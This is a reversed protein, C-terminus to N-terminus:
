SRDAGAAVRIPNGADASGPRLKRSLLDLLISLQSSTSAAGFVYRDPRIVVWRANRATMWEHLAGTVDRIVRKASSSSVPSLCITQGRIARWMAAANPALDELPTADFTLLTFRGSLLDDLRVGARETDEIPPQPLRAGGTLEDIVGARIAPVIDTMSVTADGRAAEEARFREDRRAAAAPDLICVAAGAAVSAATIARVHEEREEQYTDFLAADAVGDLVLRVKWVLQAADRIGHCMGQGFFPPTQHAADGLLFVSGVRWRHAVLGHFRYVAARVVEVHAPDIWDSLLRSIQAPEMAAEDSEQPLLMYEWRRHQGSGPIVTTPRSPDCVMLSYGGDRVEPPIQYASPWRMPGRVFTDVVLWREEFAMDDLAIGLMKRTPSSAGDCAFVFQALSERCERSDVPGFGVITGTPVQTLTRLEHALRVTVNPYRSLGERLVGELQPQYFLNSAPWGLSTRTDQGRFTRIPKADCGLYVSGGLPRTLAAIRDGLGISQYVRMIEADFHIARPLLYPEAGREIVLTRLGAQGCLNAAVAGVPGLGIIVVDFHESSTM